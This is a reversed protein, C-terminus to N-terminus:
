ILAEEIIIMRWDLIRKMSWETYLRTRVLKEKRWSDYLLGTLILWFMVKVVFCDCWM